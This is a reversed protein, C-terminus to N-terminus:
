PLNRIEKRRERERGKPEQQERLFKKCIKKTQDRKRIMNKMSALLINVNIMPCTPHSDSTEFPDTHNQHNFLITQNYTKSKFPYNM